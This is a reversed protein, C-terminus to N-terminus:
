NEESELLKYYKNRYENYILDINDFEAGCTQAFFAAGLINKIEFDIFKAPTTWDFEKVRPFISCCRNYSEECFEEYKKEIDM